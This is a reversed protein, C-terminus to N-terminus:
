GAHLAPLAAFEGKPGSLRFVTYHRSSTPGRAPHIEGIKEVNAYHVALRRASECETLFVIPQRAEKTLPRTMDFTPVDPSPWALIQLPQDRMYYLLAAV